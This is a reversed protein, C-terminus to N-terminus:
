FPIDDDQVFPMSYDITSKDEMGSFPAPQYPNVEEKETKETRNRSSGLMELEKAIIETTYREINEKDTWKRTRLAGQIFAKDGKRLYQEAVEALNGYFVVRHWETKDVKDGTTKNKYTYTTAISINVILGLEGRHVVPDAGLYGILQAQNLNRPM